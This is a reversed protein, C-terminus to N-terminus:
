PANRSQLQWFQMYRFVLILIESYVNHLMGEDFNSQIINWDIRINSKCLCCGMLLKCDGIQKINEINLVNYFAEVDGHTKIILAAINVYRLRQIVQNGILSFGDLRRMALVRCTIYILRV